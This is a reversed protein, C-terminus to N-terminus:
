ARASCGPISLIAKVPVDRRVSISAREFRRSMQGKGGRRVRRKCTRGSDPLVESGSRSEAIQLDDSKLESTLKFKGQRMEETGCLFQRRTAQKKEGREPFDGLM